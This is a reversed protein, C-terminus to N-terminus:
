DCNLHAGLHPKLYQKILCITYQLVNLAMFTRGVSSSDYHCLPLDDEEKKGQVNIVCVAALFRRWTHEDSWWCSDCTSCIHAAVASVAMGHSNVHSSLSWPGGAFASAHIFCIPLAPFIFIRAKHTGYRFISFLYSLFFQSQQGEM